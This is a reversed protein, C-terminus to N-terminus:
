EAGEELTAPTDPVLAAKLAEDATKGSKIAEHLADADICAPPLSPAVPAENPKAM